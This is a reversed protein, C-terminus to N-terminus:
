LIRSQDPELICAGRCGESFYNIVSWPNYIETEGIRYGDYWDRIEEMRERCVMINRM